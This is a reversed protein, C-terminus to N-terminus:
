VSHREQIKSFDTLGKFDEKNNQQSGSKDENKNEASVASDVSSDNVPKTPSIDEDSAIAVNEGDSLLPYNASIKRKPTVCMALENKSSVSSADDLSQSSLFMAPRNQSSVNDSSTSSEQNKNRTECLDQLFSLDNYAPKQKEGSKRMEEELMEGYPGRLRRKSYRRQEQPSKSSQSQEIALRHSSGDSDPFQFRSNPTAGSTLSGGSGVRVHWTGQGSRPVQGDIVLKLQLHRDGSDQHSTQTARSSTESSASSCSSSPATIIENGGLDPESRSSGIADAIFGDGPGSSCAEGGPDSHHKKKHPKGNAGSTGHEEVSLHKSASPSHMVSDVVDQYTEDMTGESPCLHSDALSLDSLLRVADQGSGMLGATLLKLSKLGNSDVSTFEQEEESTSSKRQPPYTLSRGTGSKAPEQVMAGGFQKCNIGKRRKRKETGSLRNSVSTWLKEASSTKKIRVEPLLMSSVSTVNDSASRFHGRRGSISASPSSSTVCSVYATVYAGPGVESDSVLGEDHALDADQSDSTAANSELKVISPCSAVAPVPAPPAVKMLPQLTSPKRRPLTALKKTDQVPTAVENDENQLFFKPTLNEGGITEANTFSSSRCLGFPRKSSNSSNDSNPKLLDFFEKLKVSSTKQARPPKPSKEEM